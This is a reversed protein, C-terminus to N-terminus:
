ANAEPYQHLAMAALVLVIEGRQNSAMVHDHHSAPPIKYSPSTLCSSAVDIWAKMGRQVLVAQGAAGFSRSSGDLVHRRLEEYVAVLADNACPATPTSNMATKKATLTSTRRQPSPGGCWIRRERDAGPRRNGLDFRQRPSSPSVGDRRSHTQTRQSSWTEATGIGNAREARIRTTGSLLFPTFLRFGKRSSNGTAPRRSGAEVDRVQGPDYRRCRLLRLDSVALRYGSETASEANRSTPSGEAQHRTRQRGDANTSHVPELLTFVIVGTRTASDVTKHRYHYTNIRCFWPLARRVPAASSPPYSMMTKVYAADNAKCTRATMM